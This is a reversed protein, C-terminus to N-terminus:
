ESSDAVDSLSCIAMLDRKIPQARKKKKMKLIHRPSWSAQRLLPNSFQSTQLPDLGPLVIFATPPSHAHSLHRPPPVLPGRIHGGWGPHPPAAPCVASPGPGALRM